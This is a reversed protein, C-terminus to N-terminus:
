AARSREVICAAYRGDRSANLHLLVAPPGKASLFACLGGATVTEYYASCPAYDFPALGPLASELRAREAAEIGAGFSLQWRTPDPALGQLWRALGSTGAFERVDRLRGLPASGGGAGLLLL